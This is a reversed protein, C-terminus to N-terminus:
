GYYEIGMASDESKVSVVVMFMEQNHIEAIPIFLDIV